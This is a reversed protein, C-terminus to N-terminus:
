RVFIDKLIQIYKSKYFVWYNRFNNILSFKVPCMKDWEKCVRMKEVKIETGDGVM